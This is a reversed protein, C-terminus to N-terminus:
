KKQLEKRYICIGTAMTVLEAAPFALWIGTSGFLLPLIYAFAIVFVCGRMLCLLLSKGSRAVSQFYCIFVMNVGLFLFGTFYIRVAPAALKLIEPGPDLFIYTFLDPVALGLLVPVACIVLSTRLSLSQVKQIREKLGAGHNISLIPQAAQEIGKCLCIVVLATNSIIGYVTVGTNGLYRILQLNFFFITFGSAAEIVFSTFGNAFIRGVFVPRFGKLTFRLQNRGTLFHTCLILVTLTSGIVTALAAGAMGMDMPFVFVIDLIINTVGGAIVGCMSLRPAGDNRIFTQLFSSFFYTGMGWIIYPIYDMIYPMTEETGGLFLALDEMFVTCLVLCVLFMCINLLFAATFCVNGEEKKGKGRCISMLVSGGVGCLLGLGFFVNYIPLAINLAALATEGLRKGIIITDALVYISTVMTGCIAPVLYHFFLERVPRQIFENTDMLQKGKENLFTGSYDLMYARCHFSRLFIGFILIVSVYNISM